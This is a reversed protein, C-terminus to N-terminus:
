TLMESRVLAAKARRLAAPCFSPLGSIRFIDGSPTAASICLAACRTASNSGCM